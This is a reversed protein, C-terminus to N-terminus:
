SSICRCQRLCREKRTRDGNHGCTSLLNSHQLPSRTCFQVLREIHRWKTHVILVEGDIKGSGQQFPRTGRKDIPCTGNMHPQRYLSLADLILSEHKDAHGIDDFSRVAIALGTCSNNVQQM